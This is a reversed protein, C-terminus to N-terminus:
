DMLHVSEHATIARERPARTADDALAPRGHTCVHGIGTALVSVGDFCDICDNPSTKNLPPKPLRSVVDPMVSITNITKKLRNHRADTTLNALCWTGAALGTQRRHRQPRPRVM